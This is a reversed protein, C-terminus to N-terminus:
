RRQRLRSLHWFIRWTQFSIHGQAQQHPKEPEGTEASGATQTNGNGSCGALFLAALGAGLVSIMMKKM